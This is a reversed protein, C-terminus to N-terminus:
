VREALKMAIDEAKLKTYRRLMGWTKHGTIAAVEPISLGREFFRSTAEHRLDHLRLNEIGAKKCAAEFAHTISVETCGFLTRYGMLEARQLCRTIIRLAEPSLPVDRPEGNKTDRLILIRKDLLVDRPSVRAIEGRRMGTHLALAIADKARENPIHALLREEEDGTLRRDRAKPEKPLKVKAVPNSECWELEQCAIQFVRSLLSLERRVTAPNVLAGRMTVQALRRDRYQVIDPSGIETIPKDADILPAAQWKKHGEMMRLLVDKEHRYGKHQPAVTSLYYSVADRLTKPRQPAPKEEEPRYEGREIQGELNRAWTAAETKTSFSQTKQVLRLGDPTQRRVIAQWKDRHRRITAM